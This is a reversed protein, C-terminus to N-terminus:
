RDLRNDAALVDNLALKEPIADVIAVRHADSPQRDGREWSGVTARTVGIVDAFEARSEQRTERVLRIGAPPLAPVIDPM